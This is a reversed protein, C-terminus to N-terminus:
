YGMAGIVLSMVLLTVLEHGTNIATLQLSRDEFADHVYMRMLVLGAWLWVATMLADQLFSNQFFHNALFAFIALVYASAFSALLVTGYLRLMQLGKPTDTDRLRALAAWRHYFAKPSYWIMGVAMSSLAALTVAFLNVSVDM